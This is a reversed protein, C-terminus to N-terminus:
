TRLRPRNNCGDLHVIQVRMYIHRDAVEYSLNRRLILSTFRLEFISAQPVVDFSRIQEHQARAGRRKDELESKNIPAM